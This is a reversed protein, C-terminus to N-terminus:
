WLPHGCWCSLTALKLSDHTVQGTVRQITSCPEFHVNAIRLLGNDSRITIIHDRGAHRIEHQLVSRGLSASESRTDRIRRCERTGGCLNWWTDKRTAPLCHMYMKLKDMRKKHACSIMEGRIKPQPKSTQCGERTGPHWVSALLLFIRVHIQSICDVAWRAPFFHMVVGANPLPGSLYWLGTKVLHTPTRNMRVLTLKPYSMCLRGHLIRVLLIRYMVM